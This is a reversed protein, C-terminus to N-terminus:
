RTPSARMRSAREEAQKELEIQQRLAAAHAAERSLLLAKETEVTQLKALTEKHAAEIGALEARRQEATKQAFAITAEKQRRIDELERNLQALEAEAALKRQANAEEEARMEAVKRKADASAQEAQLTALRKAETTAEIRRRAESEREELEARRAALDTEAKIKYARYSYALAGVALLMLVIVGLKKM